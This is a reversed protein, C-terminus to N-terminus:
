SPMITRLKNLENITHRVKARQESKSMPSRDTQAIARDIEDLIRKMPNTGKKAFISAVALSTGLMHRKQAEAIGRVAESVMDQL